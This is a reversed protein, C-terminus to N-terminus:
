MHRLYPRREAHRLQARARSRLALCHSCLHQLRELGNRGLAIRESAQAADTRLRYAPGLAARRLFLCTWRPRMSPQLSPPIRIFPVAATLVFHWSPPPDAVRPATRCPSPPLFSFRLQNKRAGLLELCSCFSLRLRMTSARIGLLGGWRVPHRPRRGLPPSPARMESTSGSLACAVSVSKSRRSGSMCFSDLM